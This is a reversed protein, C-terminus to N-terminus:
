GNSEATALVVVRGDGVAERKTKDAPAAVAPAVREGVVTPGRAIASVHEEIFDVARRDMEAVLADVKASIWHYAILVPIAVMLGAATTIMAQYIGKALLETKGLAEGSAAVTQFATIMGFTTGLLGLLPAISAIVSLLRAYKRLKFVEREGAEQVRKEIVDVPGALHKIGAALMNAVPSANSRCYELAKERDGSGNNEMREVLGSFFGGPLVRSKRLSVLREVIVTLAVISCLGIPIMVPGGKIALDWISQVKVGGAVAQAVATQAIALLAWTTTGAAMARDGLLQSGYGGVPTSRPLRRTLLELAEGRKRLM